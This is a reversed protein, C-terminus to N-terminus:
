EKVQVAVRGTLNGESDAEAYLWLGLSDCVELAQLYCARFALVLPLQVGWEDFQDERGEWTYYSPIVKGVLGWQPAEVTGHRPYYDVALCGIKGEKM